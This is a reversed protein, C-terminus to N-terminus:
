SVVGLKRLYRVALGPVAEGLSRTTELQDIGELNTEIGRGAALIDGAYADIERAPKMIETFLAIVVLLVAAGLVLGAWALIAVGTSIALPTM